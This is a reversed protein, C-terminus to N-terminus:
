FSYIDNYVGIWGTFNQQNRSDLYDKWGEM